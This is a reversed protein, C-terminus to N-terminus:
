WRWDPYNAWNARRQAPILRVAVEATVSPGGATVRSEMRHDGGKCNVTASFSFTVVGGPPIGGHWTLVADTYDLIGASAQADANYTADDVVGSLDDRVAGDFAASGDDRLRVTFRVAAGQVAAATDATNSITVHVPV